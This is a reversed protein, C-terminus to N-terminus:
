CFVRDDAPGCGDGGEPRATDLIEVKVDIPTPSIGYQSPISHNVIDVGTLNLDPDKIIPGAQRTDAPLVAGALPMTLSVIIFFVVTCRRM